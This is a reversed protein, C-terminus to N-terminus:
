PAVLTLFPAARPSTSLCVLRPIQLIRIARTRSQRLIKAAQVRTTQMSGSACQSQRRTSPPFPATNWRLVPYVFQARQSHRPPPVSFIYYMSTTGSSNFGSITHSAQFQTPSNFAPATSGVTVAPQPQTGSSSAQSFNTQSAPM